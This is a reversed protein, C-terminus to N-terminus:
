LRASQTEDQFPHKGPLFNWKIVAGAKVFLVNTNILANIFYKYFTFSFTCFYIFIPKQVPKKMLSFSVFSLTLVEM